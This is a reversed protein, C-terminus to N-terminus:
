QSASLWVGGTAAWVVCVLIMLARGEESAPQVPCWPSALVAPLLLIGVIFATFKFAAVPVPKRQPM